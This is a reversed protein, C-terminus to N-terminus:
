LSGASGSRLLHEVYPMYPSESPVVPPKITDYCFVCVDRHILAAMFDQALSVIRLDESM